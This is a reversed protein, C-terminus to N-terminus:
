RGYEKKVKRSKYATILRETAKDVPVEWAYNDFWYHELRQGPYKASEQYGLWEGGTVVEEPTFGREAKVKASKKPHSTRKNM